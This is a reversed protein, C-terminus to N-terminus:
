DILTEIPNGQKMLGSLSAYDLFVETTGVAYGAIEYENFTYTIGKDNLFFNKNLSIESIDFYGIDELEGVTRVQNKELIKNVIMKIVMPKAEETFLDDETIRNGTKMDIVANLFNKGGHAGGTYRDSCVTYSFLGDDNYRVIMKQYNYWPDDQVFGEEEPNAEGNGSEQFFKKYDKAYANLVATPNEYESDAEPFFDRLVAKRVKTLLAKDPYKAPYEISLRMDLSQKSTDNNLYTKLNLSCPELELKDHKIASKGKCSYATALIVAITVFLAIKRM